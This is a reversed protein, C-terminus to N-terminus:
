DAGNLIRRMYFIPTNKLRDCRAYCEKYKLSRRTRGDVENHPFWHSYLGAATKEAFKAIANTRREEMTPLGSLELCERYSKDFGYIIKLSQSQLKEIDSKQEATAMPGYVVQAFEM